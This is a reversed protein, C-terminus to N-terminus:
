INPMNARMREVEEYQEQEAKVIIYYKNLLLRIDPHFKNKIVWTIPKHLHESVKFYCHGIITHNIKFFTKTSNRM